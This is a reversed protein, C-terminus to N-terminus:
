FDYQWEDIEGCIMCRNAGWSSQHNNAKHVEQWQHKCKAEEKSKAQHYSEILEFFYDDEGIDEMRCLLDRGNEILYEKANM